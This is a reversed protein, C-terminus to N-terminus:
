KSFSSVDIPESFVATYLIPTNIAPDLQGSSVNITVSPSTTDLVPRLAGGKSIVISANPNDIYSERTDTGGYAYDLSRVSVSVNDGTTWLPADDLYVEFTTSQGNKDILMPASTLNVLQDRTVFMEGGSQTM